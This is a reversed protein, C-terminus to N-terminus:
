LSRLFNLVDQKSKEPMADYNAIVKDAESAAREGSGGGRHARIAEAVDSTRGDHLLFIRSGLGWLPATRFERGSATGQTVGDALGPGMDHVLLDSYLNVDRGGLVVPKADGTRLTPTHCATCGANAFTARGQEISARGGPRDTAADSPALYRIFAAFKEISTITELAAVDDTNGRYDGPPNRASFARMREQLDAVQLPYRHGSANLYRRISDVPPLGTADSDYAEATVFECDKAEHADGPFLENTVGMEDHYAEAAAVLISANQAKWGFRGIAIAPAGSAGTPASVLNPRGHVGLLANREANATWNARIANDPIQEVLGAGYLPTPIRLAVNRRAIEPAFDYPALACGPADPRGAITLVAHVAGDPSGDPKQLLRAVHVPGDPKVFDPLVAAQKTARFKALLAQPNRAPSTGGSAPQAHCGGCNDLNM